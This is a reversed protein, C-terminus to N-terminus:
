WREPIGSGLGRLMADMMARYTAEPDPTRVLGKLELAVAGHMASWLQQAAEQPEAVNIRRAATALEVSHLLAGFAASAHENVEESDSEHHLADEFMAAYFHPNNIAFRRYRLACGRLRDMPDPEGATEIAMRLRNFGRILLVNVLGPKGGLRNYVGMPAIRAEEAVARVTLSRPGDRILVAEAAVILEHEVRISPTRPRRGAPGAETM